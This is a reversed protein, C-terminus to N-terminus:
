FQNEDMLKEVNNRARELLRYFSSRSMGLLRQAEDIDQGQLYYARLALKEKESLRDIAETLREIREDKHYREPEVAQQPDLGVNVHRDRAKSRRYERCINRAMATVWPGFSEPDNLRNLKQYARLFVEQALDQASDIRRTTDFCIARVLRAYRDYLEGFLETEGALIKGVLTADDPQM